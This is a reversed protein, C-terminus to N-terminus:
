TRSLTRVVGEEKRFEAVKKINFTGVRRCFVVLLIIVNDVSRERTIISVSLAGGDVRVEILSPVEYKLGLLTRNASGRSPFYAM